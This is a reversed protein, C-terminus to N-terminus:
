RCEVRRDREVLPIAFANADLGKGSADTAALRAGNTYDYVGIYLASPPAASTTTLVRRDVIDANGPLDAFPLLGALPAGDKQALPTGDSAFAQAFASLTKPTDGGAGPATKRWQLAVVWGNACALVHHRVLALQSGFRAEIQDPRVQTAGGLWATHPGDPAYSVNLVRTAEGFSRAVPGPSVDAGFTQFAYALEPQYPLQFRQVAVQRDLGTNSFVLDRGDVYDAMLIAGEIFLPFRRVPVAVWEPVNLALLTEGPQLAAGSDAVARVPESARAYFSQTNRVYLVGPGAALVTCAIRSAHILFPGRQSGLSRGLWSQLRAATTVALAAWILSAGLSAVYFVREANEVYGTALRLVPLAVGAAFLLAGCVLALRTVPWAYAVGVGMIALCLTATALGSIEYPALLWVLPHALAQSAIFARELAGGLTFVFPPSAGKPILTYVAAYVLALATIVLMPWSQRGIREGRFLRSVEYVLCLGPVCLAVENALFAVLSAICAGGLWILSWQAEGPKSGLPTHQTYHRARAYSLLALQLFFLAILHNLGAPLAVAQVSLPNCLFLAATALAIPRENPSPRLFVRTLAYALLTNLAHTVICLIHLVLPGSAGALSALRYYALYLPRYYGFNQTRTFLDLASYDRVLRVSWADDFSLPLTLSPLYVLTAAAVVAVAGLVALFPILGLSTRTTPAPTQGNPAAATSAGESTSAPTSV